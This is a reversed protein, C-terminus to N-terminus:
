SDCRKQPNKELCADIFEKMVKTFSGSSRDLSPAAQTVTNKLVQSPQDNSGPVEGLALETRILPTGVPRLLLAGLITIGLSWIDAKGDYDHCLVVEPAM